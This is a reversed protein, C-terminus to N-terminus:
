TCKDTQNELRDIDNALEFIYKEQSKRGWIFGVLFLCPISLFTVVQKQEFSLEEFLSWILWLSPTLGIITILILATTNKGTLKSSQKSKM